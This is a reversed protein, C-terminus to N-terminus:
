VCFLGGCEACFRQFALLHRRALLAEESHPVLSFFIESAVVILKLRARTLAVNFRRPDTLFPSQAHDPDSATLGFLVVDRETGQLREVTDVLPLSTPGLKAILRERVLNNQARHPSLLAIQETQLGYREVLREVLAVLMEAEEPSQQRRGRHGLLVLSVAPDPACIDDLLDGRAARVPVLRAAAVRASAPQLTGEYWTRSPFDCLADNLRYSADLRVRPQHTLLHELVSGTPVGPDDSYDGRIVPPLQRSDGVFIARGRGCTLALWAQPLLLQSAEDLAVVDFVRRERERSLLRRLGQGTAGVVIWPEERLEAAERLPSVFDGPQRGVKALRVPGPALPLMEALRALVQDIAQHTLATVAVRLPHGREQARWLLALLIRALLWTKGTGPPGEVLAVERQFALLLADAQAAGLLAGPGSLWRRAWAEEEPPLLSGRRYLMEVAPHSPSGMVEEVVEVLLPHNYDTLEEELSYRGGPRPGHAAGRLLVRVSGALPDLSQLIVPIGAQLDSLGLAALRLFDGERLRTAGAAAETRLEHVLHGEEDLASGVVLLPGLARGRLVREQLPLAQLSLIDARRLTHERELFRLLAARDSEGPHGTGPAPATALESALWQWLAGMVALRELAPDPPQSGARLLSEPPRLSPSLGLVQGVAYLSVVGPVPLRAHDLLLRRLDLLHRLGTSPSRLLTRWRAPEHREALALLLRRQHSGWVALWDGAAPAFRRELTALLAPLEEVPWEWTRGGRLEMLALASPLGTEPDTSIEVGYVAGAPLVPLPPPIVAVQHDRLARAHGPLAGWALGEDLAAVQEIRLLGHARLAERAGRGLDPLLQVDQETLAERTCVAAFPCSPCWSGLSWPLSGPDAELTASARAFLAPASELWPSLPFDARVGACSVFGAPEPPLLGHEALLVAHLAVEWKREYRVEQTSEIAGPCVRLGGDDWSIALLDPLGVLGGPLAGDSILVAGDLYLVEGPSARAREGLERIRQLSEEQRAGLPGSEDLRHLPPVRSAWGLFRECQARRLWSALRGSTAPRLAGLASPAAETLAQRAQLLLPPGQAAVVRIRPRPAAPVPLELARLDGAVVVSPSSRYRSFAALVRPDDLWAVLETLQMAAPLASFFGGLPLAAQLLRGHEAAWTRLGAPETPLQLREFEVPAPSRVGLADSSLEGELDPQQARIAERLVLNGFTGLATRYRWGGTLERWVEIGNALVAVPREREQVLLRQTRSWLGPPQEESQLVERVAQAAEWSVPASMGVWSLEEGEPGQALAADIRRAPGKDIALIRLRRGSLQVRQGVELQAAVKAPIEALIEADVVLSLPPEEWPLNSWLRQEIRAEFFRRGGAWLGRRERKLWGGRELSPVLEALRQAHAPFLDQLSALSVRSREYVCSLVQQVLVSPFDRPRLSEAEGRQALRLLGLFRLLQESADEGHCIGWVVPQGTRRGARGLRQLFASASPPPGYLLAADVDGIDIGLELTSTAICLAEREQRLRAEVRRREQPSLNSYHLVCRGRFRGRANLVGFLRECRGRSDTFLLLKRRGQREALDEVLALLEEDGQLQVLNAQLEPGGPFVLIEPDKLEFGAVIEGPDALTASMAIRQLPRGTRRSLRSLLARLQVGRPQGATAHAEDLIVVATRRLLGRLEANQSGLAVDLSEPTTLLLDPLAGGRKSDGTRVALRLGLRDCVAVQVRRALDQALARTPVVYVVSWSRGERILRELCPALVAETKGQATAAQLVLDRGELVPRIAARQVPRLALFSSYFARYTHPLLLLPSEV